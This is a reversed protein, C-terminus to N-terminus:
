VNSLLCCLFSIVSLPSGFLTLWATIRALSGRSNEPHLTPFGLHLGAIELQPYLQSDLFALTDLIQLASDHLPYFQMSLSSWPDTSPERCILWQTSILMQRHPFGGFALSLIFSFTLIIETNLVTGAITWAGVLWLPFDWLELPM